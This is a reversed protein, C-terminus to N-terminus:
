DAWGRDLLAAKWEAQRQRLADGSRFLVTRRFEGGELLRLDAGTPLYVVVCRLVRDGKRVAWLPEQRTLPQQQQMKLLHGLTARHTADNCERPLGAPKPLDEAVAEVLRAFQHTVALDTFGAQEAIRAYYPRLWAHPDSSIRSVRLPYTQRSVRALGQGPRSLVGRLKGNKVGVNGPLTLRRITAFDGNWEYRLEVSVGEIPRM